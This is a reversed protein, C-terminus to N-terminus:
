VCDFGLEAVQRTVSTLNRLGKQAEPKQQYHLTLKLEALVLLLSFRPLNFPFGLSFTYQFGLSILTQLLSNDDANFISGYLSYSSM